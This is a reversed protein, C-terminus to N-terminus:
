GEQDCPCQQILVAQQGGPGGPGGEWLQKEAPWGLSFLSWSNFKLFKRLVERLLLWRGTGPHFLCLMNIDRRMYCVVTLLLLRQTCFCQRNYSSIKAWVSYESQNQGTTILKWSCYLVSYDYQSLSFLEVVCMIAGIYKLQLLACFLGEKSLQM